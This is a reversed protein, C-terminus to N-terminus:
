NDIIGLLALDLLDNLIENHNGGEVYTTGRDHGWDGASATGAVALAGVGALGAIAM